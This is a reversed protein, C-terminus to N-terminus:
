HPRRSWRDIRCWIDASTIGCRQGAASLWGVELWGVELRGGPRSEVMAKPLLVAFAGCVSLCWRWRYRRGVPRSVLGAPLLRPGRIVWELQVCALALGVGTLLFEPPSMLATVVCVGGVISWWAWSGGRDWGAARGDGGPRGDGDPRVRWRRTLGVWGTGVAVLPMVIYAYFSITGLLVQVPATVVLSTMTTLSYRAVAFAKVLFLLGILLPGVASVKGFWEALTDLQGRPGGQDGTM